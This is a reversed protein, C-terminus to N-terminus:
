SLLKWWLRNQERLAIQHSLSLFFHPIFSWGLSNFPICIQLVSEGTITIHFQQASLHPTKRQKGDTLTFGGSKNYPPFRHRSNELVFRCVLTLLKIDNQKKISLEILNVYCVM